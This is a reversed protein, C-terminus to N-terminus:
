MEDSPEVSAEAVETTAGTEELLEALMAIVELRQAATMNKKLAAMTIEDRSKAKYKRPMKAPIRKVPFLLLEVFDRRHMHYTYTERLIRVKNEYFGLMQSLGALGERDWELTQLMEAKTSCKRCIEGISDAACEPCPRTFLTRGKM